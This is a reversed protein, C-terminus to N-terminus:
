LGTYLVTMNGPLLITEPEYSSILSVVRDHCSSLRLCPVVATGMQPHQAGLPEQARHGGAPACWSLIASDPSNGRGGWGREWGPGESLFRSPGERQMRTGM